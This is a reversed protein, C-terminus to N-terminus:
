DSKRRGTENEQEDINNGESKEDDLNIVIYESVNYTIDDEIEEEGYKEETPEYWNSEDELEVNGEMYVVKVIEGVEDIEIEIESEIRMKERRKNVNDEKKKRIRGEEEERNM